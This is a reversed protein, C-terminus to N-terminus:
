NQESEIISGIDVFEVEEEEDNEQFVEFAKRFNSAGDTITHTLKSVEIGFSSHVESMIEAIRDYTHSGLMRRCALAVSHRVLNDDIWHGTMGMYSQHNVSWIDATTCIHNVTKINETISKNMSLYRDNLHKTLSKRCMVSKGSSREVLAKFATKEVTSLPRMESVIYQIVLNDIETQSVARHNSAHQIISPQDPTINAKH